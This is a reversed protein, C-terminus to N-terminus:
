IISTLWLWYHGSSRVKNVSGVGSGWDLAVSRGSVVWSDVVGVCYLKITIPNGLIKQVLKTFHM